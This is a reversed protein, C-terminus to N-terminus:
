VDLWEYDKDVFCIGNLHDIEHCFCKAMDDEGTLTIKEGNENLAEVEV